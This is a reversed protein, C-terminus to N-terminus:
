KKGGPVPLSGEGTFYQPGPIVMWEAKNVNVPVDEAYHGAPPKGLAPKQRSKPGLRAYTTCEVGDGTWKAYYLGVDQLMVPLEAMQQSDVDADVGKKDAPVLKVEQRKDSVRVWQKKEVDFKWLEKFVFQGEFKADKDLVRLSFQNTAEQGYLQVIPEWKARVAADAKAKAIAAADDAARTMAAPGGLWPIRAAPGALVVLVTAAVLTPQWHRRRGRVPKLESTRAREAIRHTM